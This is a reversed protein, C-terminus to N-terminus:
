RIVHFTKTIFEFFLGFLSSPRCDLCVFARCTATPSRGNYVQIYERRKTRGALATALNRTWVIHLRNWLEDRALQAATWARDHSASQHRQAPDPYGAPKSAQNAFRHLLPLPLLVAEALTPAINELARSCCHLSHVFIPSPPLFNSTPRLLDM